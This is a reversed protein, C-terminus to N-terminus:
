KLLTYREFRRPLPPEAAQAPATEVTRDSVTNGLLETPNALSDMAQMDRHHRHSGIYALFRRVSRPFSCRPSGTRQAAQYAGARGRRSRMPSEERETLLEPSRKSSRRTDTTAASTTSHTVCFAEAGITATPMHPSRPSVISAGGSKRATLSSPVM